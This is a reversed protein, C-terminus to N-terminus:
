DLLYNGAPTQSIVTILREKKTDSTAEAAIAITILGTASAVFPECCEFVEVEASESQKPPPVEFSFVGSDGSLGFVGSFGLVGCVGLVGSTGFFGSVGSAGTTGVVGTLGAVGIAGAGASGCVPISDAKLPARPSVAM